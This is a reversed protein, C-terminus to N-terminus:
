GICGYVESKFILYAIAELTINAGGEYPNTRWDRMYYYIRLLVCYVNFGNLVRWPLTFFRGHKNPLLLFVKGHLVVQGLRPMDTNERDFDDVLEQVRELHEPPVWANEDGSCGRWKVLYCNEKL